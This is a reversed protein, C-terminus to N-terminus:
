ALGMRVNWAHVSEGPRRATDDDEKIHEVIHYPLPDGVCSGGGTWRIRGVGFFDPGEHLLHGHEDTPHNERELDCSTGYPDFGQTSISVSCMREMEHAYEESMEELVELGQQEDETLPGFPPFGVEHRWQMENQLDFMREEQSEDEYM